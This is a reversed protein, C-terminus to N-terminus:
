GKSEQARRRRDGRALFSDSWLTLAVGGIAGFLMVCLYAVKTHGLVPAPIAPFLTVFSIFSDSRVHQEAQMQRLEARLDTTVLQTAALVGRPSGSSACVQLTPETYAPFRVEGTNTQTVAYDTVGASRLEQQMPQSMITQTVMGTVMPLSPNGVLYTNGIQFATGEWQSSPASVYFGQCAEYVISRKHVAFVAIVTCLGVLALVYWRRRLTAAFEFASM